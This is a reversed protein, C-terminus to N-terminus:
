LPWPSGCQVEAERPAQQARQDQQHQRNPGSHRLRITLTRRARIMSVCRASSKRRSLLRLAFAPSQGQEVHHIASPSSKSRTTRHPCPCAKRSEIASSSHKHTSESARVCVTTGPLGGDEQTIRQELRLSKLSPSEELVPHQAHKQARRGSVHVRMIAPQPDDDIQRDAHQLRATM